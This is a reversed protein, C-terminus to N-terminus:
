TAVVEVVRIADSELNLVLNRAMEAFRSGLVLAPSLAVRDPQGAEEKKLQRQRWALAEESWDEVAM